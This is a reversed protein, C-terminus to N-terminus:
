GISSQWKDISRYLNCVDFHKKTGLSGDFYEALGVEEFHDATVTPSNANWSSSSRPVVGDNDGSISNLIAWPGYLEASMTNTPTSVGAYSAVPLNGYDPYRSNFDATFKSTLNQFANPPSALAEVIYDRIQSRIKSLGGWAMLDTASFSPKQLARLFNVWYDPTSLVKLPGFDMLAIPQAGTIIDALPSGKHPTSITTVSAFWSARNLGKVSTLYRADLGGMSHAVLHIKGTCSLERTSVCGLIASELQGARDFITGVSDVQPEIFECNTFCSRVGHFYDVNAFKKFGLVGHALLVRRPQPAAESSIATAVLAGLFDRRRM